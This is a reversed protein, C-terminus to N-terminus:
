GSPSVPSAAAPSAGPSVARQILLTATGVVVITVVNVTLQIAAGLADGYNGVATAVGINAAAPVTTVSIVVGILASSKASTLSVVGAVGACAAVIVSYADPHTIFGTLPQRGALFTAPVVGLALAVHTIGWAALHAAPFGVALALVSRRAPAARRTAVAVCLAALPGFEPGVVMAGVILIPSDLMIGCAAVISAVVMFVLFSGTLTAEDGVRASVEEWVVADRGAGPAERRAEKAAESLATEVSDLAVSGVDTVGMERLAERIANAAERAVDAHVLDGSPELAVGRQLTLNTVGVAGRLLDIVQDTRDSPSVIRFHLM